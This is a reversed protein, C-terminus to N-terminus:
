GSAIYTELQSEDCKYKLVFPTKLNGSPTKGIVLNYFEGIPTDHFRFNFSYNTNSLTDIIELINNVDFIAQNTDNSNRNFIGNSVKTNIFNKIEPIEKLSVMRQQYLPKVLEEQNTNITFDEKQCNIFTLLLLFLSLKTLLKSIPLQHKM